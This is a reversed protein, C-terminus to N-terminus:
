SSPKKPVAVPEPDDPEVFFRIIKALVGETEEEEAGGKEEAVILGVQAPQAAHGGAEIVALRALLVQMADQQQQIAQAQELKGKELSTIHTHLTDVMGELMDVHRQQYETCHAAAAGSTMTATCGYKAFKCAQIQAACLRLHLPLQDLRGHWECAPANSCAVGAQLVSRRVFHNPHTSLSSCAQGDVPCRHSTTLITQVCRFCYLHGCAPEMCDRVVCSCLPCVFHLIAPQDLFLSPAWGKLPPRGPGQYPQPSVVGARAKVADDNNIYLTAKRRPTVAETTVEM